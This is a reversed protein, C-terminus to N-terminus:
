DEDSTTQGIRRARFSQKGVEPSSPPTSAARVLSCQLGAFLTVENSGQALAFMSRVEMPSELQYHQTDTLWSAGGDARNTQIRNSRDWRSPANFETIQKSVEVPDQLFKDVFPTAPRILRPGIVSPNERFIGRWWDSNRSEEPNLAFTAPTMANASGITLLAAILCYKRRMYGREGGFVVFYYLM